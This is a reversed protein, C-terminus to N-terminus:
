KSEDTVIKRRKKDGSVDPITKVKINYKEGKTKSTTTKLRIYLV